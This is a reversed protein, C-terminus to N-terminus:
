GKLGLAGRVADLNRRSVPVLEQREPDVVLYVQGDFTKMGVVWALNVLYSRHCRLFGDRALQKEAEALSYNAIEYDEGSLVHSYNGYAKFLRAESINLFSIEEATGLPIKRASSMVAGAQLAEGDLQAASVIDSYTDRNRPGGDGESSGPSAIMSFFLKEEAGGYQGLVILSVPRERRCGDLIMLDGQWFGSRAAEPMIRDRLTNRAGPPFIEDVLNGVVITDAGLNWQEWARRNRYLLVGREDFIGVINPDAELIHSFQRQQLEASRRETIDLIYRRLSELGGQDTKVPVTFDHVWRYEGDNTIFRYEQEIFDRGEELAKRFTSDFDLRDSPHVLDHFDVQTIEEPTYGFISEVNPSVYEVPSNQNSRWAFVVMPGGSFLAVERQLSHQVAKQPSIDRAITSLREVEGNNDYHALILQSMPIERGDTGFLATEGEWVGNKLATPMGEELVRRSAWDPHGRKGAKQDERAPKPTSGGDLDHDSSLGLLNRGARNTYMPLGDPSAFSVLDPTAELVETMYRLHNEREKWQSLDHVVTAYHTIAGTEDRMALIVQAIAIEEGAANLLASEGRWVGDRKAVPLAENWLQESAWAPKLDAINKSTLEKVDSVGYLALGAPNYYFPTGDPYAMSVLDPSAELVRALQSLSRQNDKERTVDSFTVLVGALEGGEYWPESHIRIWTRGMDPTRVGIVVNRVPTGARLTVLTPLDDDAFSTGDEKVVGWQPSGPVSGLIEERPTGLIEEAAPNCDIIAGHRDHLVYGEGMTRVVKEFFGSSNVSDDDVQSDPQRVTGIMTLGEGPGAAEITLHTRPSSPAPPPLVLDVPRGNHTASEMARQLPLQREPPIRGMLPTGELSGATPLHLLAVMAPNIVSILGTSDLSVFGAASANLLSESLNIM